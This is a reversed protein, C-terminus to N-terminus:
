TNQYFPVTKDSLDWLCTRCIAVCRIIYDTELGISVAGYLSGQNLKYIHMHKTRSVPNAVAIMFDYAEKYQPTFAELYIYLSPCVWMPRKDHDARLRLKSFDETPVDSPALRASDAQTIAASVNIKSRSRKKSPKSAVPEDDDDVIEEPPHWM